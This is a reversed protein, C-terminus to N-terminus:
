VDNSVYPNQNRIGPIVLLLLALCFPPVTYFVEFCYQVIYILEVAFLYERNRFLFLPLVLCALFLLVGIPGDSLQEEIFANHPHFMYKKDTNRIEDPVFWCDITEFCRDVFTQRGEAFGWGLPKEEMMNFAVNWVKLRPEGQLWAMRPHSGVLGAICLIMVPILWYLMRRRWKWVSTISFTMLTLLMTIFGIRGDTICLALFSPITLIGFILQEKLKGNVFILAYAVLALNFAANAKMHDNFFHMRADNFSSAFDTQMNMGSLIRIVMLAPFVVLGYAVWKLNIDEPLGLIGMLGFMLFSYRQELGYRVFIRSTMDGGAILSVTPMIAFFAIFAVFTWKENSWSWHKLRGSLVIEAFYFLAVCWMVIRNVYTDGIYLSVSWLMALLTLSTLFGYRLLSLLRLKLMDYLVNYGSHM